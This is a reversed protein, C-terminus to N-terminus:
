FMSRVWKILWGLIGLSNIFVIALLIPSIYKVIFYYVEIASNNKLVGNNSLETVLDKKKVFHGVFIAILLGGAPLLVNSSLFDFLNFFTKGFFKVGGLVSANDASLTALVGFIVIILSNLIVAKTRSMGKEESFYAVPVEVLSLMATTAAISSLIFFALLLLNGFAMKSSLLPITMFLLGPGASPEMHFSFVAPFIAIGALISVMTDSLAVRISTNIM